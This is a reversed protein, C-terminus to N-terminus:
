TKSEELAPVRFGERNIRERVESRDIRVSLPADFSIRVKEGSVSVIQVTVNDGIVVKEGPKRTLCLM